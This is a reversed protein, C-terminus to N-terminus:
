RPRPPPAPPPLEAGCYTCTPRRGSVLRLCRPCEVPPRRCKGDLLGDTLDVERIRDAIEKDTIGIRDRLLTCLAEAVLEVRDLRSQLEWVINGVRDAKERAQSADLRADWIRHQQFLEWLIGM